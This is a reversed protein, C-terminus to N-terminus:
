FVIGAYGVGYSFEDEDSEDFSTTYEMMNGRSHQQQAMIVKLTAIAQAGCANHNVEAEHLVENSDGFRIATVMRKDNSRLWQYGKEGIGVPRFRYMAGYHTLDSSALVMTKRPYSSLAHNIITGLVKSHANSPVIIPVIRINTKFYVAFPVVVEISHEQEQLAINSGLPHHEEAESQIIEALDSNVSITGLPTEWQGETLINPRSIGNHDAGLIVATEVDWNTRLITAITRVAIRGSYAWGAHPVVGGIYSIEGAPVHFGQLFNEIQVRANGPYFHKAGPERIYM